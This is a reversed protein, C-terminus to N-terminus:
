VAGQLLKGDNHDGAQSLGCFARQQLVFSGNSLALNVSCQIVKGNQSRSLPIRM